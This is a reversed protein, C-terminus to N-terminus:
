DSFRSASGISSTTALANDVTHLDAVSVDGTLQVAPKKAGYQVKVDANLRGSLLTM